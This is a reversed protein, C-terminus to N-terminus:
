MCFKEEPDFWMRCLPFQPYAPYPLSAINYRTM